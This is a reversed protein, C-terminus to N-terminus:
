VKQPVHVRRWQQHNCAMYLTLFAVRVKEEEDRFLEPVFCESVGRTLEPFGVSGGPPIHSEEGGEGEM